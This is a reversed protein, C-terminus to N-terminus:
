FGQLLKRIESFSQFPHTISFCPTVTCGLERLQMWTERVATKTKCFGCLHLILASQDAAADDSVSKYYFPTDIWGFVQRTNESLGGCPDKGAGRDYTRQVSLLPIPIAKM